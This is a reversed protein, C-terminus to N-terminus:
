TFGLIRRQEKGWAILENDREDFTPPLRNMPEDRNAELSSYLYLEEFYKRKFGYEDFQSLTIAAITGYVTVDGGFVEHLQKLLRQGAHGVATDCGLLRLRAGKALLPRLNAAVNLGNNDEHGAFLLADGMQLAGGAGHDYLDLTDILGHQVVIKRVTQVLLTPSDCSEVFFVQSHPFAQTASLAAVALIEEDNAIRRDRARRGVVLVHITM